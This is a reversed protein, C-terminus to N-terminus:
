KNNPCKCGHSCDECCSCKCKCDPCSKCCDKTCCPGTTCLAPDSTASTSHGAIGTAVIGMAVLLGGFLKVLMSFESEQIFLNFNFRSDIAVRAEILHDLFLSTDPSFHAASSQFTLGCAVRLQARRRCRAADPERPDGDLQASCDATRRRRIHATV